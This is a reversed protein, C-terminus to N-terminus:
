SAYTVTFMVDETGTGGATVVDISGNASIGKVAVVNGSTASGALITATVFANTGLTKGALGPFNPTAGAGGSCKIKGAIFKFTADTPGTSIVSYAQSNLQTPNANLAYSATTAFSSTVQLNNNTANYELLSAIKPAKTGVGEVFTLYHTGGGTIATTVNSASTAITATTASGTLSGSISIDYGGGATLASYLQTIDSTQITNGNIINSSDLQAM